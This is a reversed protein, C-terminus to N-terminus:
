HGADIRRSPDEPYLFEHGIPDGPYFWAKIVEPAGAPTEEFTVTPKDTPTLREDPVAFFTSYVKTGDESLVQIVNRGGDANALKFMYTGAPMAVGPVEV